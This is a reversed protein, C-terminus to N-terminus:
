IIERYTDRNKVRCICSASVNFIRGLKTSGLRSGRISLVQERTLGSNPNSVGPLCASRGREQKDMMNEAHTGFRLHAPNICATNDCAHLVHAGPIENTYVLACVIRHLYRKVNAIRVQIYGRTNPKIDLCEWCGNSKEDIFYTVGHM